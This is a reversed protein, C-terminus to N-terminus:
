NGLPGGPQAEAVEGLSELFALWPGGPPSLSLISEVAENATDIAEVARELTFVSSHSYDAEERERILLLFATAITEVQAGFELGALRSAYREAPAGGAAWTAMLRVDKHRFRRTLTDWREPPNSMSEAEVRAAELTVAHFLAYYAASVARRYDTETREPLDGAVARAHRLLDTPAIAPPGDLDRQPSTM